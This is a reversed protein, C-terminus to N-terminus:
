NGRTNGNAFDSPNHFTSVIGTQEDWRLMVNNPIDSWVLARHDGFWVPGEV